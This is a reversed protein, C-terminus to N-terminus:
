AQKRKLDVSHNSKLLYDTYIQDSDLLNLTDPVILKRSMKQILDTQRVQDHLRELGSEDGLDKLLLHKLKFASIQGAEYFPLAITTMAPYLMDCFDYGGFGTLSIQAPIAIQAECIAKYAGLAINDTACLILSYKSQAHILKHTLQYADEMKFSCLYRDIVANNADFARKFGRWRNQGVAIDHEDVGIYAASQHGLALCHQALTYAAKEDPYSIFPINQHTQGVIVLGINLSQIQQIIKEHAPTFTSALWIIGALKQQCLQQLIDIERQSSQGYHAVLLQMDFQTLVDDIGTLTRSVAYSDIRPTVVAVLKSQKSKLNQATHNPLFGTEQIVQELRLKTAQSVSGNNLFRSVTSKAVGALTAIDHITIQKTM